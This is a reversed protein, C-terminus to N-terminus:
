AAVDTDVPHRPEVRRGFARPYARWLTLTIVTALVAKVIDGPLFVTSTLATEALPLRTVLAQVPIGFAYVVLIGGTVCAVATRWWRPRESGVSAVLGVVVVGVIWGLLYGASPGVFIGAGGRGGSLIPLGFLVLVEFTLVAAAGRWPGLITGALMVGLTQLTIPVAGGFVPVAGPLGLVAILAAFVAVRTTDRIDWAPRRLM